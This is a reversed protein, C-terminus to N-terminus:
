HREYRLLALITKADQILGQDIMGISQDFTVEEIDIAEHVDGDLSSPQLQKAIFLHVREDSYGPSAYFSGFPLLEGARYGIEEQLERQACEEASEGEELCGAPIEYIIKQIPRRWQKILILTGQETIPIMGVAQPREVSYWHETPLNEFHLIDERLSLVPTTQLVKSEIRAKAELKQRKEANSMM